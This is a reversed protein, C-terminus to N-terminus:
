SPTGTFGIKAANPLAKMLNRMCPSHIPVTANMSLSCIKESSNIEPYEDAKRIVEQPDQDQWITPCATESIKKM